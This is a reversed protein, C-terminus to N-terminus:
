LINTFNVGSSFRLICCKLQWQGLRASIDGLYLTVDLLYKPLQLGGIESPNTNYQLLINAVKAEFDAAKRAYLKLIKGTL